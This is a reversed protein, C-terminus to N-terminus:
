VRRRRWWTLGSPVLKSRRKKRLIRSSSLADSFQFLFFSLFFSLPTSTVKSISLDLRVLFMSVVFLAFFFTTLLLPEHLMLRTPFKYTVQVNVQHENVVNKRSVKLVPRGSTDLYTQVVDVEINVGM